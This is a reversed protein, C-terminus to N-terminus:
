EPKVWLTLGDVRDVVARQGQVLGTPMASRVTWNSGRLEGQGRGGAQIDSLLTVSEGVLNDLDKVSGHLRLRAVLRKRFLALSLVALVSFLLLQAPTTLAVGFALLGGVVLAAIGFFLLDFGGTLLIEGALFALGIIIWTWWAM